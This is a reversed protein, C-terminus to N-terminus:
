SRGSTYCCFAEWFPYMPYKLDVQEVKDIPNGELLWLTSLSFNSGPAGEKNSSKVKNALAEGLEVCENSYNNVSSTLCLESNHFDFLLSRRIYNNYLKLEKLGALCTLDNILDIAKIKGLWNDSSIAM